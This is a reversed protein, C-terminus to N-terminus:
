EYGWVELLEKLRKLGQRKRYAITKPTTGLGRGIEADNMDLFFSLLIVERMKPPLLLVAKGLLADDVVVRQKGLSLSVADLCYHDEKSLTADYACPISSFDTERKARRALERKADVSENKILKKCYADFTQEQYTRFEQLTM